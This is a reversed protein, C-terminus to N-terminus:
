NSFDFLYRRHFLVLVNNVYLVTRAFDYFEYTAFLGLCYFIRM